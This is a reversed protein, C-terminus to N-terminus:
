DLLIKVQNKQIHEPGFLIFVLVFHIDIILLSTKKGMKQGEPGSRGKAKGRPGWNKGKNVQFRLLGDLKTQPISNPHISFDAKM